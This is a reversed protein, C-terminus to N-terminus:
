RGITQVVALFSGLGREVAASSARLLELLPQAKQPIRSKRLWGSKWWLLPIAIFPM